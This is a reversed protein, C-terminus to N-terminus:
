SKKTKLLPVCNQTVAPEVSFKRDPWDRFNTVEFRRIKEVFIINCIQMRVIFLSLERFFYLIMTVSFEHFSKTRRNKKIRAYIKM